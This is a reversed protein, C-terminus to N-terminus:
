VTANPVETILMFFIVGVNDFHAVRLKLFSLVFMIEHETEDYRVVHHRINM